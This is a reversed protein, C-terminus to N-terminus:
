DGTYGKEYLDTMHEEQSYSQPVFNPHEKEFQEERKKEREERKKAYYAARREQQKKNRETYLERRM